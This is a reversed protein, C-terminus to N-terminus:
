EGLLDVVMAEAEDLLEALQEPGPACESLQRRFRHHQYLDDLGSGLRDLLEADGKAQDVGRLVEALFDTGQRRTERDFPLTSQDEVRECWAFPTQAAWEENLEELLHDIANPRRLSRHLEGRGELQIRVVLSRGGASDLLNGLRDGLGDLLAQDTEFNSINVSLTEWRVLDVPRFEMRISGGDEVEVLYLGRAGSENPQRGQPNGPYAVAPGQQRLVQRRHVHGLAWYDIGSAELDSLSCPAYPEHEPNGGVNAHLLGISFPGPEVQPIHLTLNETVQRTPYSVGCVVARGPDDQFVPSSEWEPGFRKCSPPYDLRAEWGDLPDHNGHCVFSRVGAEDLKRLGEVFKLQARLSRDAGDYIDGAVLLADVKEAICLEVINDWAKFTAAYLADAVQSPAAARLGKFPSDLHLDAAHAFRIRPVEKKRSWSPEIMWAPGTM